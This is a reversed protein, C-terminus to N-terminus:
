KKEFVPGFKHFEEPTLHGLLELISKMSLGLTEIDCNGTETVIIDPTRGTGLESKHSSDVDDFEKPVKRQIDITIGGWEKIVDAENPFRCDTILAIGNVEDDDVYDKVKRELSKVWVDQHFNERMADTGIIQLAKRPTMGWFEDHVQKQVPDYLQDHTFGLLKTIEKLTDAFAFEKTETQDTNLYILDRVALSATNKGAGAKGTFAIISPKSNRLTPNNFIVNM